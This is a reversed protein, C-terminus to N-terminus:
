RLFYFSCIYSGIRSFEEEHETESGSGSTASYYISGAGSGGEDASYYVSGAMSSGAMSSGTVSGTMSVHDLSQRKIGTESLNGEDGSSRVEEIIVKRKEGRLIPEENDYKSSIMTSREILARKESLLAKDLREKSIRITEDYRNAIITAEENRSSSREREKLYEKAAATSLDLSGGRQIPEIAEATPVGLPYRELSGARINSTDRTSSCRSPPKSKEGRESGSDEYGSYWCDHQYYGPGASAHHYVSSRRSSPESASHYWSAPASGQSKESWQSSGGESKADDDNGLKSKKEVHGDKGTDKKKKKKLEKREKKRREKQEKQFQKEKEKEDKIRKKEEPSLEHGQKNGM